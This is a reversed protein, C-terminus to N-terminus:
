PPVPCSETDNFCDGGEYVMPAPCKKNFSCCTGLSATCTGLYLVGSCYKYCTYPPSATANKAAGTLLATGIVLLGAFRFMMKKM